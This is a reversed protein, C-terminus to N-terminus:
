GFILSGDTEIGFHVNQIGGSNHAMRADSIVNGSHILVTFIFMLSDCIVLTVM